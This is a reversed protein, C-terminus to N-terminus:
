LPRTFNLPKGLRIIGTDWVCGSACNWGWYWLYTRSRSPFYPSIIIGGHKEAVEEWMIYNSFAKLIDASLDNGYKQAFAGMDKGSQLFQIHGSLNRGYERTFADVDKATKLFLIRSTDLITVAHQYRLNELSFETAECWRRWEENIDFWLGNPKPHGSQRYSRKHLRVPGSAWHYYKM